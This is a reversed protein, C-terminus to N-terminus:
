AGRRRLRNRLEDIAQEMPVGEGNELSELSRRVRDTDLPLLSVERCAQRLADAREVVFGMQELDRVAGDLLRRTADLWLSYVRAQDSTEPWSLKGCECSKSSRRRLNELISLGLGIADEIDCCAMAEQHAIKWSEGGEAQTKYLRLQAQYFQEPM